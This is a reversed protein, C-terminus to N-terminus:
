EKRDGEDDSYTQLIVSPMDELLKSPNSSTNTIIVVPEEGVSSGDPDKAGFMCNGIMVVRDIVVREEEQFFILCPRNGMGQMCLRNFEDALAEVTTFVAM